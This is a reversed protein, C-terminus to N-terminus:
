VRRLEVKESDKWSVKVTYASGASEEATLFNELTEFIKAKTERIATSAGGVLQIEMSIASFNVDDYDSGCQAITGQSGEKCKHIVSLDTMGTPFSVYIFRTNGEGRSYVDDVANTMKSLAENAQALKINQGYNVFSFVFLIAVSAIIFITLLMYEAAVQGRKGKM